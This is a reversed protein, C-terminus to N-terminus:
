TAPATRALAQDLWDLSADIYEQRVPMPSLALDHAGGEFTRIALDRGLRPARAWMQRPDLVSDTTLLEAHDAHNPGRRASTAVWIPVQIDLGRAVRRHARRIQRLWGFAAGGFGEHPKWALNYDWEGGTSRHLAQGYYSSLGSIEVRPLWRGLLEILWTVPGRLLANENLDLWPSNLMVARLRGPRANVWLPGILGGTSHGMFVLGDTGEEPAAEAIAAAAADLDQDYIALNTTFNPPGEQTGRGISRGYGRLDVAYFRYGRAEYARALHPHFFSDVFGHLYLVAPKGTGHAAGQDRKLRVLTAMAGGPLPLDRQEFGDLVDDHWV